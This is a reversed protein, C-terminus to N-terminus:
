DHLAQLKLEFCLPSLDRHMDFINGCCPDQSLKSACTRRLM